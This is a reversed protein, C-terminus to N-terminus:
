SKKGYLVPNLSEDNYMKMQHYVRAIRKGKRIDDILQDVALCLDKQQEKLVHLKNLCQTKHQNDADVRNAEINMHFIKLCLISLRDIAWGPSETNLRAEPVFEKPSIEKLLADDIKEVTETRVQNSRDIRRKIEMGYADDINPDRIIDELHWQITDIMCKDYLVSKVEEGRFPNQPIFDVSDTIHYDDIAREFVRVMEKSNWNLMNKFKTM